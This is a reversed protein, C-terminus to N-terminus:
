KIIKGSKIVHAVNNAGIQYSIESIDAVNFIVLDAQNKEQIVGFNDLHLSIANGSTAATLAALPPVKMFYTAYSIVNQMSLFWSNPNFDTGLGINVGTDNLIDYNPWNHDFLVIPAIPMFTATVNNEALVRFDNQTAKLLHDISSIWKGGYKTASQEAIGTRVIEEGHLRVPMGYKISEDILEFTQDISFAGKDCFVDSFKAIGQSKVSSMMDLVVSVYDEPKNKYEPAILHAGLFTPVLDIAHEKNVEAIIELAQM